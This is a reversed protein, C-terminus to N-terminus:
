SCLYLKLVRTIKLQAENKRGAKKEAEIRLDIAAYIFARENEDLEM